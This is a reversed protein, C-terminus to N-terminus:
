LLISDSGVRDRRRSCNVLEGKSVPFGASILLSLSLFALPSEV